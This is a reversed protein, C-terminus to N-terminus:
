DSLLGNSYINCTYRGFQLLKPYTITTNNITYLVTQLIMVHIVYKDEKKEQM